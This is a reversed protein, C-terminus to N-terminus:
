VIVFPIQYVNLANLVNLCIIVKSHVMQVNISVNGIGFLHHILVIGIAFMLFKMEPLLIVSLVLHVTLANFVTLANIMTLNIKGNFTYVLPAVKWVSTKMCATAQILYVNKALKLLIANKVVMLVGNALNLEVMQSCAMLANQFVTLAYM